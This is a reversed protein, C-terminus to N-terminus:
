GLIAVGSLGGSVAGLIQKNVEVAAKQVALQERAIRDAESQKALRDQLSRFMENAGGRQIQSEAVAQVAATAAVDAVFETPPAQGRDQQMAELRSRKELDKRGAEQRSEIRMRRALELEAFVAEIASGRSQSAAFELTPMPVTEANGMLVSPSLRSAISVGASAAYEILQSIWTKVDQFMLKLGNPVQQLAVTAVIAFDALNDQLSQFMAKANAVFLSAGAGVGNFSESTGNVADLMANLEPLLASGIAIATMEVNTKFKAYAGATTAALRDNMGALRGSGTTLAELAKAVMDFSILGAEMDKKLDAMSRGTMKSIEFLPSFGSNILQNSEQGMLRGAAKVQAMGRALLMLQESNGQAVETLQTLTTFAEESGMGFNLMLKQARALDPLGFVTKKDLARLDELTKKAKSVSGLLVEFSIATTEADASLQLMKVAGTTAGITALIGGLGSFAGRLGSLANGAAGAKSAISQMATAAKGAETQVAKMGDASFIVQAEQITIAM